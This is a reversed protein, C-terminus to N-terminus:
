FCKRHVISPGSQDYEARTVWMAQFNPSSVLVDGGKWVLVDRDPPAIIKIKMTPPALADIENKMREIIGPFLTCRGAVVINEYLTPRIDVDCKMISNYVTEHIGASEMNIFSPQFMAEPVQFRENGLTHGGHTAEGQGGDSLAQEYNQVVYGLRDMLESATQQDISIGRDAMLRQLYQDLDRSALDLRLIAHPLAYGEYIPVTHSVGEDSDFVIGTTRNQSYLALLARIAIYMNAVDFTEFLIETTKERNAKPNLPAETMLVNCGAPDVQLAAFVDRLLQTFRDWSTVIGHESVVHGNVTGLMTVRPTDDEIFGANVVGSGIDIVITKSM